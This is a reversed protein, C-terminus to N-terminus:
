PKGALMRSVVVTRWAATGMSGVAILVVAVVVLGGPAWGLAPAVAPDLLSALALLVLREARAMVGGSYNVGHAEGRARAYSVLLSGGLAGLVAVEAWPSGAFVYALGMFAFTEAFRDLTSDIFAGQVSVVNRARAIRGDLVDCAGGLLVCWGGITFSGAAYAVGAALGFAVGLLNFVLPSVGGRVLAREMPGIAWMLWDRLWYGILVTSRRRAVDADRPRGRSVVAFAFMSAVSAAVLGLAVRDSGTM